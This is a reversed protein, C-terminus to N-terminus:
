RHGHAKTRGRVTHEARKELPRQTTDTRMKDWNYYHSYYRLIYYYSSLQATIANRRARTGAPKRGRSTVRGIRLTYPDTRLIWQVEAPESLMSTDFPQPPAGMHCAAVVMAVGDGGMRLARTEIYTLESAATSESVEAALCAAVGDHQLSFVHHRGVGGWM